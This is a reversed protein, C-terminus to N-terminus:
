NRSWSRLRIVSRRLTPKAAAGVLLPGIAEIAALADACEHYAAALARVPQFYLPTVMPLFLRTRLAMHSPLGPVDVYRASDLRRLDRRDRSLLSSRRSADAVQEAMGRPENRGARRYEVCAETSVRFGATVRDPSLVGTMEAVDAGTGGLLERMDKSGEAFDFVYRPGAM